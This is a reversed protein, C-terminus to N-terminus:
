FEVMVLIVKFHIKEHLGIINSRILVFRVFLIPFIIFFIFDQANITNIINIFNFFFDFLDKLLPLVERKHLTLSRNNM